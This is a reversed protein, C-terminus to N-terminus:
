IKVEETVQFYAMQLTITTNKQLYHVINKEKIHEHKILEIKKNNINPEM